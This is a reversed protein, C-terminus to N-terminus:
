KYSIIKNLISGDDIMIKTLHLCMIILNFPELSVVTEGSESTTERLYPSVDVSVVDEDHDPKMLQYLIIREWM